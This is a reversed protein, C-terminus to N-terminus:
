VGCSVHAVVVRARVELNLAFNLIDADTIMQKLQRADAAPASLALLGLLALFCAAQLCTACSSLCASQPPVLLGPTDCSLDDSSVQMIQLPCRDHTSTCCAQLIM